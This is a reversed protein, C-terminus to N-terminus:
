QYFELDRGADVAEVGQVNTVKKEDRSIEIRSAARYQPTMLLTVVIGLVVTALFIAGLMKRWRLIVHWYHLLIPLSSTSDGERIMESPLGHLEARGLPFTDM